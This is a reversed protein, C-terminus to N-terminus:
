TRMTQHFYNNQTRETAHQLLFIGYRNSINILFPYENFIIFLFPFAKVPKVILIIPAIM